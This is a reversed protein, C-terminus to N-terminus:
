PAFLGVGGLRDPMLPQHCGNCFGGGKAGGYVVGGNITEYYWWDGAAPDTGAPLKVMVAYTGRKGEGGESAKVVVAGAPFTATSGKAYLAAHDKTVYLNMPGSHASNGVKPEANIKVYNPGMFALRIAEPDPATTPAPGAASAAGESSPQPAPSTGAVPATSAGVSASPSAAPAAVGAAQSASPGVPAVAPAQCAELAVGLALVGLCSGWIRRM